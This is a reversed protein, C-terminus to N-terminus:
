LSLMRKYAISSHFAGNFSNKVDIGTGSEDKLIDSGSPHDAMYSSVDIVKGDIVLWCDGDKNHLAIEEQTYEKTSM